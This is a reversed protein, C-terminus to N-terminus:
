GAAESPIQWVPPLFNLVGSVFVGLPDDRRLSREVDDGVSGIDSVVDARSETITLADFEKSRCTDKGIPTTAGDTPIAQFNPTNINLGIAM